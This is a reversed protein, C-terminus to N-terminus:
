VIELVMTARLPEEREISNDSSRGAPYRAKTYVSVDQASAHQQDYTSMRLFDKGECYQTSRVFALQCRNM